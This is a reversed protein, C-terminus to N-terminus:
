LVWDVAETVSVLNWNSSWNWNWNKMLYSLYWRWRWALLKNSFDRGSRMMPFIGDALPFYYANAWNRALPGSALVGTLIDFVWDQRSSHSILILSCFAPWDSPQHSYTWLSFVDEFFLCFSHCAIGCCGLSPSRQFPTISCLMTSAWDYFFLPWLASFSLEFHHKGEAKNVATFNWPHLNWFKPSPTRAFGM